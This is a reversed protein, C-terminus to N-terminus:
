AGALPHKGPAEDDAEHHDEATGHDEVPVTAPAALVDVPPQSWM